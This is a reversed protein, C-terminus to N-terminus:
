GNAESVPIGLGAAVGEGYAADAKLCNRIHRVQVDRTVGALNRATNECLVRQKEPGMLNFLLGPQTYYDSDDKRYDWRDAAGEM